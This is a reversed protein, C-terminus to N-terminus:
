FLLLDLLAGTSEFAATFSASLIQKFLKRKIKKKNEIDLINYIYIFDNM